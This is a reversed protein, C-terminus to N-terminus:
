PKPLGAGPPPADAQAGRTKSGLPAGAHPARADQGPAGTSHTATSTATHPAATHTTTHTHTHTHTTQTTAMPGSAVAPALAPIKLAATTATVSTSTAQLPAPAAPKPGAAGPPPAVGMRKLIESDDHIEFPASFDFFYETRDKTMQCDIVTSSKTNILIFPLYIRGEGEMQSVGSVKNRKVLNTYAERQAILDQMYEKKKLIREKRQAKEAELNKIENNLDFPLGIWTIEKKDKQIINMAMLVNLADYVRRRINQDITNTKNIGVTFEKVLEDAVENYTTHKKEEVKQCVKLSFHRLGKDKASASTRSKKASGGALELELEELRRKAALKSLSSGSSPPDPTSPPMAGGSDVLPSAAFLKGPRKLIGTEMRVVTGAKAGAPDTAGSRVGGATLLGPPTRVQAVSSPSPPQQRGRAPGMAPPATAPVPTAPQASSPPPTFARLPAPAAPGSYEKLPILSGDHLLGSDKAVSELGDSQVMRLFDDHLTSSTPAVVSEWDFPDLIFDQELIGEFQELETNNTRSAM